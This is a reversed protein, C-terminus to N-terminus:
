RALIPAAISTAIHRFANRLEDGSQTNYFMHPESACNQLLTVQTGSSGLGFGVTYVTVGAAKMATCLAAAQTRSNGNPSYCNAGSSGAERDTISAGATGSTTSNCYQENYDGDTMLVAIKKLLPQGKEGVQSIMAYPSPRSNPYVTAPVQSWWTPSLMYWAWATGLHGSTVGSAGFSDITSKLTTKNSSLPVVAVNPACASSSSSMYLRPIRDTGVPAADTFKNGGVRETVCYNNTRYRTSTSGSQLRFSLSSSPNFAVHPGLTPGVNVAASFPALAVRSTYESQDDWIVIDILDKAALKLDAIKTGGMSGTVDLMLSVELNTGANGGGAILAQGRTTFTFGTSRMLSLFPTSVYGTATMTFTMETLDPVFSTVAAQVGTPMNGDFHARAKEEAVAMDAEIQWVRAAALVASDVASQLRERALTARGYDVAGGVLGLVASITLAFWIVVVGREDRALGRLLGAKGAGKAPRQASM